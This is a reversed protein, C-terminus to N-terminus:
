CVFPSAGRGTAGLDQSVLRRKVAVHYDVLAILLKLAMVASFAEDQLWIQFVVQVDVCAALPELALMRPAVHLESLGALEGDVLSDMGGPFKVQDLRLLHSFAVFDVCKQYAINLINLTNIM